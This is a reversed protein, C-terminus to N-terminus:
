AAVRAVFKGPDRVRLEGAILKPLLAERLAVLTQSEEICALIRRFLPEVCEEFAALVPRPPLLVRSSSFTSTTITDFVSGHAAHVLREIAVRLRCYLTFPTQTTTALAYCTQNMAMERGVLVMRGTTAGRAVVVSCFPPVIKTTSEELGKSTITRETNILIPESSQSVDKASAWLIPGNWYEPRDTKPTGGSILRAHELISGVTWGRPIKGLESEEFSDPFLGLIANTLNPFQETTKRRVPDFDVFWSNFLTRAMVELTETMRRNVDIKDDLTGLIHAIARQEPPSPLTIYMRRQDSLSVYEAMDTQGAVGKFQVFFERGYMWFYLFRPDILDKNVSRWFCLQPSYVFRPTAPQVFAFRGVTGKSTFVVDGPQSIKNGVRLLSTEPFHDADGFQFGNNINGARAFPLGSLSLEENKARYGDGVVLSGADILDSVQYKRWDPSHSRSGRAAQVVVKDRAIIRRFGENTTAWDVVDVKYPLDSESFDESMAALIELALPEESIVVLDLDSYEKATWKTRSGFAWVEYEPVHRVLIDRVIAWHDPRIDILPPGDTM